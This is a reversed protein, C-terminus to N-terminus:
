FSIIESEKIKSPKESIARKTRAKKLKVKVRKQSLMKESDNNSYRKRRKPVNIINIQQMPSMQTM